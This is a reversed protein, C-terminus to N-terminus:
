GLLPLRRGRARTSPESRLEEAPQAEGDWRAADEGSPAGNVGASPPAPAVDLGLKSWLTADLLHTARVNTMAALMSQRVQPVSEELQALL